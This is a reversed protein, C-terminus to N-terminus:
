NMKLSRNYANSQNQQYKSIAYDLLQEFKILENKFKYNTSNSAFMNQWHEIYASADVGQWQQELQSVRNKLQDNKNDNKKIFSNLLKKCSKIDHINVEIRM